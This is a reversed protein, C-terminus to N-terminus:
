APAADPAAAEGDGFRLYADLEGRIEPDLREAHMIRAYFLTFYIVKVATVVRKFAASFLAGVAIALFLPLWNFLAEPGVPLWDFVEAPFLEGLRGGEFAPPMAPALWVGLVLGAVILLFYLPAVIAAVVRGFVDIGFVGMLTEPVNERVAKLRSMGDKLGVGDVAIAPLLFHNVLDWSESLFGMVLGTLLGGKETNRRRWNIWAAVMDLLALRRIQPGLTAAHARAEGADADEGKATDYVLRALALEQRNLYFFHYIAGIAWLLMLLMGTGGRDMVFAALMAFFLGVLVLSYVVTRILPSFIDSDRGTITATHKMLYGTEALRERMSPRRFRTM